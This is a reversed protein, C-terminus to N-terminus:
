AVEFLMFVLAAVASAVAAAAFWIDARISSTQREVSSLREGMIKISSRLDDRTSRLEGLLEDRSSMFDDRLSLYANGTSDSAMRGNPM